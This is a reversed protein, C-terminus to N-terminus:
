IFISTQNNLEISQILNKDNLMKLTEVFINGEIYYPSFNILNHNRFYHTKNM